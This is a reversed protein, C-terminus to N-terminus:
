QKNDATFISLKFKEKNNLKASIDSYFVKNNKVKIEGQLNALYSDENVYYKGFNLNINTNLNKFNTFISESSNDILNKINEAGDFENGSLYYKDNIKKFELDNKKGFKNVLDIKFLDLNKIKDNRGIELNQIHIKKEEENFIINDFNIENNNKYIGKISLNSKIDSKKKYNLEDINIESSDLNIDLDFFYDKESRKIGLTINEYTDNISYKSKLGIKFKNTKYDFSIYSNSLKIQNKFNNFYKKIRQSKYDILVDDIKIESKSNFNKVKFNKNLEFNIKNTSSFNIDQKPLSFNDLSIFKKFENTNIKNYSNSLDIDVSANNNPKKKYIAKILNKSDKNNYNTNKFLFKSNLNIELKKKDYNILLNGNKLYILNQYKTNTHLEDFNLESNIRLDKIKLNNDINFSFRNNSSAYILQDNLLDIDTNIINIYKNIDIKSRNTKFNGSIKFQNDGRNINIEKSRFLIKDISLEIKKLNIINQGLTFDFKINEIEPQNFFKFKEYKLYGEISYKMKNPNKEDFTIDSFIKLKGKKIQKLILNRTLNFDYENIFDTFKKINNEKSVISLKSVPNNDKLYEFINLDFKILELEIEKNNIAVIPDDTQAQFEFNTPDLKFNVDNLKLNIKPNIESVKGNLLNNFKNTKIGVTSLFIYILALILILSLASLYIKKLM